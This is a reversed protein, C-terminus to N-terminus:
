KELKMEGLLFSFQLPPPPPNGWPRRKVTDIKRTKTNKKNVILSRALCSCPVAVGVLRRGKGAGRGNSHGDVGKARHSCHPPPSSARLYPAAPRAATCPKPNTKLLKKKIKVNVFVRRKIMLQKGGGGGVPIIHIIHIYVSERLKWVAAAGFPAKEDRERETERNRM